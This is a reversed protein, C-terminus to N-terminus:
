GFLLLCCYPPSPVQGDYAVDLSLIWGSHHAPPAALTAKRRGTHVDWVQSWVMTFAICLDEVHQAAADLGIGYVVAADLGIGYM